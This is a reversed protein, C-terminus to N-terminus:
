AAPAGSVAKGSRRRQFEDWVDKLGFVFYSQVTLMALGCAAVAGVMTLSRQQAFHVLGGCIPLSVLMVLALKFVPIFSISPDNHFLKKNEHYILGMQALESALWTLMFGYLGFKFTLPISVCVMALNGLFMIMSLRKHMNTSFQFFQKHERMSMAGSILAMLGYTYPEFLLPKHLWVKLLIPSVLFAGLNAVPILGFVIKESYHFIKLMKQMNRDAFSYTIEQSVSSTFTALVLRATALITRSITFLVVVEAGLIWQLMVVPAQFVLFQQTYIMAFMGSPALTSKATKWNAGQLGLPLDKMMRKLDYVSLLSVILVAVLQGFAIAPFSLRFMILPISVLTAVLRRATAWTLGRHTEEVVMFMSNYYSVVLNVLSQLGLLFATWVVDVATITSLHLLKALPLFFVASIIALGILALCFLLALTSGQLARYRDMEGRKRLMTLENTAYTTIGFNLTSLYSLTASLVLWEGYKRVGYYHLFAPPLLFQTILTAGIGAGLAGLM